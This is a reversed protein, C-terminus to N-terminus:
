YLNFCGALFLVVAGYIGAMADDAVIGFGGRLSELRRAPPPKWIDLLRFLLFAGLYAKWSLSTAGSITIWQGVVEDVVVLGPDKRKLQLATSDSAWVALPLFAIALAGVHLAQWGAKELLLWAIALAAASGATGPAIPSYGCGFWTAIAKAVKGAM